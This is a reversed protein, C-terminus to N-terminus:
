IELKFNSKKEFFNFKVYNINNLYKNKNKKYDLSKNFKKKLYYFFHKLKSPILWLNKNIKLYKLYIYIKKYKKNKIIEINKKNKYSYLFQLM